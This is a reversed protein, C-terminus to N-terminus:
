LKGYSWKQLSHDSQCSSCRFMGALLPTQCLNSLVSSKVAKGGALQLGSSDFEEVDMLCDAIGNMSTRPEALSDLVVIM